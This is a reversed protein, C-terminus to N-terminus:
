PGLLRRAGALQEETLGAAIRDREKAAFDRAFATVAAAAARDLWAYAAAPDRVVGVGQEYMGALAIEAQTHGGKAAVELWRAAAAPDSAVGKGDRYLLGLRYAASADGASAATTYREVAM